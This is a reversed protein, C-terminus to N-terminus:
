TEAWLVLGAADSRRVTEDRDLIMVRGAQLCIGSLDADVAADVTDPGIVPMDVRLDQGPKARKVLVGNVVPQRLARAERVQSLLVDTGYLAEIGLVQGACVVCAQGVDLPGLAELLASGRAADALDRPEPTGVIPGASVVLDPRIEHAGRVTFGQEEFVGIVARLLADDGQSLVPLLRPMLAVTESDFATPDLAPRAMGGAFCLEDVGAARLDSFLAGLREFRAVIDPVGPLDRPVGELGVILAPGAAHLLGPLSGSGAIIARAM